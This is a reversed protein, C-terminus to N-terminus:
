CPSPIIQITNSHFTFIIIRCILNGDFMMTRVHM